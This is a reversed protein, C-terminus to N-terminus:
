GERRIQEVIRAFSEGILTWSVMVGENDLIADCPYSYTEFFTEVREKSMKVRVPSDEGKLFVAGQPYYASPYEVHIIPKTIM